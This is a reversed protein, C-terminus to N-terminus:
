CPQVKSLAVVPVWKYAPDSEDTYSAKLEGHQSSVYYDPKVQEGLWALFNRKPSCDPCIKEDGVRMTTCTHQGTETITVQGCPTAGKIIANAAEIDHRVTHTPFFMVDRMTTDKNLSTITTTAEVLVTNESPHMFAFLEEANNLWRVAGNAVVATSGLEDQLVVGVDYYGRHRLEAAKHTTIHDFQPIAKVWDIADCIRRHRAEAEDLASGVQDLESIDTRRLATHLRVLENGEENKITDLAAIAMAQLENM